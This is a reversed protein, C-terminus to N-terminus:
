RKIILESKITLYVSVGDQESKIRLFLDIEKNPINNIINDSILLKGSYGKANTSMESGAIVEKDTANYLEVICKTDPQSSWAHVYYTISQAGLWMRKDFKLLEGLVTYEDAKSAGQSSGPGFAALVLRFEDKYDYNDGNCVYSTNLVESEDLISNDNKDLGSEIKVGGEACNEGPPEEKVSSLGNNIADIDTDKGCSFISIVLSFVSLIIFHRM